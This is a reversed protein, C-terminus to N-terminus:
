GVLAAVGVLGVEDAVALAKGPQRGATEEGLAEERRELVLDRPGIVATAADTIRGLPSKPERWKGDTWYTRYGEGSFDEGSAADGRSPDTFVIWNNAKATNAACPAQPAAGTTGPPPAAAAPAAPAPAEAAAAPATGSSPGRTRPKSTMWVIMSLSSPPNAFASYAPESRSMSSRRRM